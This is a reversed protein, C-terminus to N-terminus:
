IGDNLLSRPARLKSVQPLNTLVMFPHSHPGGDQIAGTFVCAVKFEMESAAVAQQSMFKSWLSGLGWLFLIIISVYPLTPDMRRLFSCFHGNFIDRDERQLPPNGETVHGTTVDFPFERLVRIGAM